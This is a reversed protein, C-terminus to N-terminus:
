DAAQELSTITTDYIFNIGRAQMDAELTVRVDEDFGRLVRSGRYIVTTHVGLGVFISAFELAVYGGGEILISHPLVKLDFAENSTIALGAGPIEPISPRAGTAVLITRTRVERGSGLLRVLGEGAVVARDRIIEVGATDLGTEYARELRAIEKDKNAVLTPWDFRADVQWGFSGAIDFLDAFRSAYVFLKKPVCGRIVCT